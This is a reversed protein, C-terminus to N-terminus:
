SKMLLLVSSIFKLERWCQKTKTAIENYTPFIASRDITVRSNSLSLERCELGLYKLEDISCSLIWWSHKLNAPSNEALVGLRLCGQDNRQCGIWEESINWALKDPVIRGYEIGDRLYHSERWSLWNQQMNASRTHRLRESQLYKVDM